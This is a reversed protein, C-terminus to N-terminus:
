LSRKKGAAGCKLKESKPTSMNHEVEDNLGDVSKSDDCFMQKM